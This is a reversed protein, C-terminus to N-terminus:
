MCSMGLVISQEPWYVIKRGDVMTFSMILPNKTFEGWNHNQFKFYKKAVQFVITVM